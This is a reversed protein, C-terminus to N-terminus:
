TADSKEHVGSLPQVARRLCPRQFANWSHRVGRRGGALGCRATRLVRRYRNCPLIENM